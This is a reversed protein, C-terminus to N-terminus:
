KLQFSMIELKAKIKTVILVILIDDKSDIYRTKYMLQTFKGRKIEGLPYAVDLKGKANFKKAFDIFVKKTVKDRLEPTMNKIFLFHNENKIGGLFDRIIHISEKKMFKNEIQIQKEEEFSPRGDDFLTCSSCLLIGASFSLLKIQNKKM